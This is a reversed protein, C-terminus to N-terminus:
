GSAAFASVCLTASRRRFIGRGSNEADFLRLSGPSFSRDFKTLDWLSPGNEMKVDNLSPTHTAWLRPHVVIPNGPCTNFGTSSQAVWVGDSLSTLISFPGLKHSRVLNSRENEGPQQPKEIRLNLDRMETSPRGSKAYRTRALPQDLREGRGPTRIGSCGKPLRPWDIVRVASALVPRPSANAEPAATAPITAGPPNLEFTQNADRGSVGVLQQLSAVMNEMSAVQDNLEEATSATEEANAAGSQTVQDM